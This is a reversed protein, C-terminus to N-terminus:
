DEDPFMIMVSPRGLDDPGAVVKLKTLTPRIRDLVVLVDIFLLQYKMALNIFAVPEIENHMM